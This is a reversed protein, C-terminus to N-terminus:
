LCAVWRAGMHQQRVEGVVPKHELVLVADLSQQKHCAGVTARKDGNMLPLNTIALATGQGFEIPTRVDIVFTDAILLARYDQGTHREQM